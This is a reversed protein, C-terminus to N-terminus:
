MGLIHDHVDQPRSLEPVEDLLDDRVALSERAKQDPSSMVYTRHRVYRAACVAHWFSSIRSWRALTSRPFWRYGSKGGSHVQVLEAFM